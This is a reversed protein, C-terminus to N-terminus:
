LTTVAAADRSRTGSTPLSSLSSHTILPPWTLRTAPTPATVRVQGRSTSQITGRETHRLAPDSYAKRRVYQHTLTLKGAAIQLMHIKSSLKSQGGMVDDSSLKSQRRMADPNSWTSCRISNTSRRSSPASRDHM